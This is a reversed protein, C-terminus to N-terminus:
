CAKTAVISQAIIVTVNFVFAIEIFSLAVSSAVVPLITM